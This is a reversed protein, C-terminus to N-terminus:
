QGLLLSVLLNNKVALVALQTRNKVMCKTMLDAIINRARGASIGLNTAIEHNSLGDEVLRLVEKEKETFHVKTHYDYYQKQYKFLNAAIGFCNEYVIKTRNITKEFCAYLDNIEDNIVYGDVGYKLAMSINNKDGDFSFVLIKIQHSCVKIRKITNFESNTIKNMYMAVVDPKQKCCIEATDNGNIACGIVKFDTEGWTKKSLYDQFVDSDTIIFVSFM